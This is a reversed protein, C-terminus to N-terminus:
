LVVYVLILLESPIIVFSHLLSLKPLWDISPGLFVCGFAGSRAVGAVVGIGHFVCGWVDNFGM